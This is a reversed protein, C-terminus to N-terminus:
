YAAALSFVGNHGPAHCALNGWLRARFEIQDADSVRLMRLGEDDVVHPLPDLHILEWSDMELVYGRNEPCAPDGLVELDGTPTSIAVGSFGSKGTGGPDRVVKTDLELALQKVQLPNMFCKDPAGGSFSIKACLNQITEEISLSTDNIRHGGLRVPNVSRDVGFFPTSTPATLPVWDALGAFSASEDGYNFLFDGAVPTVGSLSVTLTGADFDIATVEMAPDSGGDVRPSAGTETDDAIITEGVHFNVVDSKNELTLVSGAVGGAAIKGSWGNTTRYLAIATRKQLTLLCNTMERDLVRLFGGLDSRTSRMTESDVRGIGYDKVRTLLFAVSSTVNRYSQARTFTRSAFGHDYEVPLTIGSGEFRDSKKVMGLFPYRLKWMQEIRKQPYLRKIMSAVTTSNVNQPAAM